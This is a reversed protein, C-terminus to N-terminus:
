EGKENHRFKSYIRCAEETLPQKKTFHQIVQRGTVSHPIEILKLSHGLPWWEKVAYELNTTWLVEVGNWQELIFTSGKWMDPKECFKM